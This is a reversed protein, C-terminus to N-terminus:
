KWWKKILCFNLLWISFVVSILSLIFVVILSVLEPCHTMLYEYICNISAIGLVGGLSMIGGSIICLLTFGIFRFINLVTSM